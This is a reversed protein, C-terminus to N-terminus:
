DSHRTNRKGLNFWTLISVLAVLIFGLILSFVSQSEGTKPLQQGTPPLAPTQTVPKYVFTFTQAQDTITATIKDSLSILEYGAITPANSTIADGIKGTYVTATKLEKGSQDVYRVTIPAPELEVIPNDVALITATTHTTVERVTARTVLRNFPTFRTMPNVNTFTVDHVGEPLEAADTAKYAVGDVIAWIDADPVVNNDEDYLVPEHEPHHWTYTTNRVVTRVIPKAELRAYDYKFHAYLTQNGMTTDSIDTIANGATADDFWGLFIYGDKTADEFSPVGVGYTYSDPNATSNTGGDLEYAITYESPTFRAYLTKDEKATAPINTVPNGGTAADYWGQFDHGTKSAPNFSSVGTGFEYHTPNVGNTGGDLDYTITYDWHAYLDKTGTATSSINTILNGGEAADYWGLFHYGDKTADEFSAVGVDYTYKAPNASDNDGGDLHYVIDYENPTWRAYLTKNGTETKSIATVPNGATADDYWGAFTYGTKGTADAFITVGVGYTYTTPNSLSNNGGNLVYSIDYVTPAWQATYTVTATVFNAVAPSWGTFTYGTEGKPSVGDAGLTGSFSPTMSNIVRNNFVNDNFDGHNGKTYTVNFKYKTNKVTAVYGTSADVDFEESIVSGAGVDYGPSNILDYEASPAVTQYFRYTGDGVSGATVFGMNAADTTYTAGANYDVWSGDGQQKQLKFTGSLPLNTDNDLLYVGATGSTATGGSGAFGELQGTASVDSSLGSKTIRATNIITTNTAVQLYAERITLAYRTVKGGIINSNGYVNTFFTELDTRDSESYGGLNIVNTAAVTAFSANLDSYRAGDSGMDGLYLVFTYQGFNDQYFGYDYVGLRNKFDNYSEGPNQNIKTLPISLCLASSALTGAPLEIPYNVMGTMSATIPTGNLVDEVYVNNQTDYQAGFSEALKMIEANGVELTWRAEVDSVSQLIKRDNSRLPTMSSNRFTIDKNIMGFSVSYTGGQFGTAKYTSAGTIFEASISQKGTANVGLVVEVKNNNVRWQGLVTGMSDSFNIWGSNISSWSGSPSSTPRNFSFTDGENLTSTAPTLTWDFKLQYSTNNRGLNTTSLPNGASDLINWGNVVVQNSYDVPATAARLAPRVKTLEPTTDTAAGEFALTQSIGGVQVAQTVDQNADTILVADTQIVADVQDLETVAENLTLLVTQNQIVFSGITEGSKSVLAKPTAQTGTWTGVEANVPLKVQYTSGAVLHGGELGQLHIEATLAYSAGSKIPNIESVAQQNADTLQWSTVPADPPAVDQAFVAAVPAFINFLLSLGLAFSLIKQRINSQQTHKM